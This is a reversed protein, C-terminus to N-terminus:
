AGTQVLARARREVEDAGDAGATGLSSGVGVAVAGGALWPRIGEQTSPIGGTVVLKLGPMVAMLDGLYSPEILRAPFLKVATAGARRCAAVESPTLAGPVTPTGLEVGTAVVEPDFGYSVIFRAGLEVSSWVQAASTVTGMGVVVKDDGTLERLAEEVGPISYTLEIVTMGGRLCARATAVADACDRTRLVPIVRQREIRELIGDAASVYV